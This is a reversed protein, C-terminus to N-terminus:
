NQKTTKIWEKLTERELATLKVSNGKPMRKLTFVQKEIKLAFRDMNKTSFVKFPNQKIHCTNCKKKLIVLAQEKLEQQDDYRSPRM